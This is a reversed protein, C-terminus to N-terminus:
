TGILFWDGEDESGMSINDLSLDAEAPTAEMYLQVEESGLIFAPLTLYSFIDEWETSEVEATHITYYKTEGSNTVKVKWNATIAESSKISFNFAVKLDEPSGFGQVPILQLPGSWAAKRETIFLFNDEVECNAQRCTWPSLSGTDFDGNTVLNSLSPAVTTM